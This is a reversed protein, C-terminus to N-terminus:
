LKEISFPNIYICARMSALRFVKVAYRTMNAGLGIAVVDFFLNSSTQWEISQKIALICSALSAHRFSPHDSPIGYGRPEVVYVTSYLELMADIDKKYTNANGRCSHVLIAIPPHFPSEQANSKYEVLHGMESSLKILHTAGPYENCPIPALILQCSQNLKHQLAIGIAMLAIVGITIIITETLGKM